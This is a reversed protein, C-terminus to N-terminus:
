SGPWLLQASYGATAQGDSRPTADHSRAADLQHLRDPRPKRRRQRRQASNAAHQRADNCHAPALRPHLLHHSHSPLSALASAFAFAIRRTMLFHETTHLAALPRSEALLQTVVHGSLALRRRGRRGSHESMMIWDDDDHGHSDARVVEPVGNDAM